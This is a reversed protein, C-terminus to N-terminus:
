RRCSEVMFSVRKSEVMKSTNKLLNIEVSFLLLLLPIAHCVCGSICSSRVGVFSFPNPFQPHTKTSLWHFNPLHLDWPFSKSGTYGHTQMGWCKIVRGYSCNWDWSQFWHVHSCLSPDSVLPFDGLSQTRGHHGDWCVAASSEPKPLAM